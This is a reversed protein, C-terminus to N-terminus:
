RRPSPGPRRFEVVDVQEVHHRWRDELNSLDTLPECLLVKVDCDGFLTTVVDEQLVALGDGLVLDLLRCRSLQVFHLGFQDLDLCALWPVIFLHWHAVMFPDPGAVSVQDISLGGQCWPCRRHALPQLAARWTADDALAVHEGSPQCCTFVPVIFSAAIRRTPLRNRRRNKLLTALLFM